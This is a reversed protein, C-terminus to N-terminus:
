FQFDYVTKEETRKCKAKEISQCNDSSGKEASLSVLMLFENNIKRNKQNGRRIKFFCCEIKEM